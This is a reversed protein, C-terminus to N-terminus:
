VLDLCWWLGHKNNKELVFKPFAQLLIFKQSLIQATQNIYTRFIKLNGGVRDQNIATCCSPAVCMHWVESYCACTIQTYIRWNVM